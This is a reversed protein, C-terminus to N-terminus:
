NKKTQEALAERLFRFLRRAAGAPKGSQQERIADRCLQRVRQRDVFEYHEFLAELGQDGEAILRDRWREIEHFERNHAVQQSHRDGLYARVQAVNEEDMFKVCHKLQRNRAGSPRMSRVLALADRLPRAVGLRALEQDSLASMQEALAQLAAFGRKRASKSPRESRDDSV